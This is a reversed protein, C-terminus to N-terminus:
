SARKTAAALAQKWTDVSLVSGALPSTSGQPLSIMPKKPADDEVAEELEPLEIEDPDLETLVRVQHETTGLVLVKSGVSVVSITSGRTIHQRHLIQVMAGSKGRFKRGGVRALLLLLGLVLSLSLVLRVALEVM